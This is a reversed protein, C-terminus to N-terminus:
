RLPARSRAAPISFPVSEPALSGGEDEWAQVISRERAKQAAGARWSRAAHTAAWPGTAASIPRYTIKM